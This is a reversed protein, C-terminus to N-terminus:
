IVLHLTRDKLLRPSKNTRAQVCARALLLRHWQSLLINVELSLEVRQLPDKHYLRSNELTHYVVVSDEEVVLRCLLFLVFVERRNYHFNKQDNRSFYKVAISLIRLKVRGSGFESLVNM